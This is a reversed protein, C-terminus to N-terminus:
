GNELEVVGIGMERFTASMEDLVKLIGAELDGRLPRQRILTRIKSEVTLLAMIKDEQMEAFTKPM